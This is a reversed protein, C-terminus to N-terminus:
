KQEEEDRVEIAYNPVQWWDLPVEVSLWEGDIYVTIHLHKVKERFLEESVGQAAGLPM